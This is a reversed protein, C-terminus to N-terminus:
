APPESRRVVKGVVVLVTVAAAALVVGLEALSVSDVVNFAATAGPLEPPTSPCPAEWCFLYLDRLSVSVGVVSIVLLDLAELPIWLLLRHWRARRLARAWAVLGLALGVAAITMGTYTQAIRDPAHTLSSECTPQRTPGMLFSIFGRPCSGSAVFPYATQDANVAGVLLVCGLVLLAVSVAVTVWWPWQRAMAALARNM